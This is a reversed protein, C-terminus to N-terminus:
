TEVGLLRKAQGHCSSALGLHRVLFSQSLPTNYFFLSLETAIKQWLRAQKPIRCLSLVSHLLHKIAQKLM